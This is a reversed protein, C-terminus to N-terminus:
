SSFCTKQEKWSEDYWTPNLSLGRAAIFNKIAPNDDKITQLVLCLDEPRPSWEIAPKQALAFALWEKQVDEPMGWLAYLYLKLSDKEQLLFRLIDKRDHVMAVKFINFDKSERAILHKMTETAESNSVLYRRYESDLASWEGEFKKFDGGIIARFVSYSPSDKLPKIEKYQAEQTSVLFGVGILALIVVAIIIMPKSM